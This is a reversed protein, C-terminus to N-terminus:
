SSALALLRQHVRADGCVLTQGKMDHLTPVNGSWDTIVGGAGQVIPVLPMIDHAKINAEIVVDCLGMALLGYGMGDGGYTEYLAIDSVKKAFATEAPTKFCNPSNIFAPAGDCPRVTCPHGNHTTMGFGGIWRDNTIPQDILGAVPIGDICLAIMTVFTPRGVAFARTGDIPDIVWIRNNTGETVGFEEGQIGDDPYTETILKRIVKETAQDAETVPDQHSKTETKYGQRYFRRIEAGSADALKNLFAITEQM